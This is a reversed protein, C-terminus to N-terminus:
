NDGSVSSKMPRVSTTKGLLNEAADLTKAQRAQKELINAESSL